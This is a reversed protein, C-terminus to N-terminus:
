KVVFEHPSGALPQLGEYFASGWQGEAVAGISAVNRFIDCNPLLDAYDPRFAIRVHVIPLGHGRASDLLAAAGHLVRQRVAGDADLG